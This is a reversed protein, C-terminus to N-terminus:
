DDIAGYVTQAFRKPLNDNGGPFRQILFVAVLDEGPDICYWTGLKGGWAWEGLSGNLGAPVKDQLTRVGLGYGYGAMQPFAFSSMVEPWVHNQRLLEVTKRSLIRLEGLKGGKVLLRGYRSM